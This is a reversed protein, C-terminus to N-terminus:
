TGGRFKLGQSPGALYHNPEVKQTEIVKSVNALCLLMNLAHESVIGYNYLPRMINKEPGFPMATFREPWRTTTSLLAEHMRTKWGFPFSTCFNPDLPLSGFLNAPGWKTAMSECSWIMMESKWLWEIFTFQYLYYFIVKKSLTSLYKM